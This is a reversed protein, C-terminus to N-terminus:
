GRRTATKVCLKQSKRHCGLHTRNITFRRLLKQGVKIIESSNNENDGLGWMKAFVSRVMSSKEANLYRELVGSNALVEFYLITLLFNDIIKQM